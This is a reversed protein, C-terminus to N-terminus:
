APEYGSAKIVSALVASSGEEKNRVTRWANDYYLHYHTINVEHKNSLNANAGCCLNHLM